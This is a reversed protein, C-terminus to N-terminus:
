AEMEYCLVIEQLQFWYERLFTQTIRSDIEIIESRKDRKILHKVEGAVAL